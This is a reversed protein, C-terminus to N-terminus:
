RSPPPWGPIEGLPKERGVVLARQPPPDRFDAGGEDQPDARGEGLDQTHLVLPDHGLVIRHPILARDQLEGLVRVPEMIHLDRHAHVFIRLPGQGHAMARPTQRAIVRIAPQDLGSSGVSALGM